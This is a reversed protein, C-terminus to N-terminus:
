KGVRLGFLFGVGFSISVMANAKLWSWVMNVIPEETQTAPQLGLLTYMKESNINVTIFDSQRLIFLVGIFILLAIMYRSYKKFLFGALFGVGAYLGIDILTGRSERIKDIWTDVQFKSKLTDFFGAQAVPENTM